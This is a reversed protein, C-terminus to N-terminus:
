CMKTKITSYNNIKKTYTQTHTKLICIFFSYNHKATTYVCTVTHIPMIYNVHFAINNFSYIM